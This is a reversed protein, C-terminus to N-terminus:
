RGTTPPRVLRRRQWAGILQVAKLIALFPLAWVVFRAVDDGPPVVEDPPTIAIMVVATVAVVILWFRMFWTLARLYPLGDGLSRMGPVLIVEIVLGVTPVFLLWLARASV